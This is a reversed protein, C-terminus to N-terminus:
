IMSMLCIKYRRQEKGIERLKGQKLLVSLLHKAFHSDKSKGFRSALSTTGVLWKELVGYAAEGLGAFQFIIRDSIALVVDAHKWEVGTNDTTLQTYRALVSYSTEEAETGALSCVLLMKALVQETESPDCLWDMELLRRLIKDSKRSRGALSLLQSLQQYSLNEVEPLEPFAKFVNRNNLEILVMSRTFASNILGVFSILKEATSKSSNPLLMVDEESVLISNVAFKIINVRMEEDSSLELAEFLLETEDEMGEEKLRCIKTQLQFALSLDYKFEAERKEEVLCQLKQLTEFSERIQKFADEVKQAHLLNESCRLNNYVQRRLEMYNQPDMEDSMALLLLGFHLSCYQFFCTDVM